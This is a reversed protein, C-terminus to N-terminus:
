KLGKKDEVFLGKMEQEGVSDQYGNEEGMSCGRLKKEINM